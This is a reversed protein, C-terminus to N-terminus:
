LWGTKRAWDDDKKQQYSDSKRKSEQYTQKGEMEWERKTLPPVGAALCDRRYREYDKETM